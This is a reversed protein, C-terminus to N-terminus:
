PQFTAEPVTAEKLAYVGAGPIELLACNYYARITCETLPLEDTLPQGGNGLKDPGLQAAREEIATMNTEKEPSEELAAIQADAWALGRRYNDVNAAHTTWYSDNPGPWHGANYIVLAALERDGDVPALEEDTLIAVQRYHSANWVCQEQIDRVPNNFVQARVALVNPYGPSRNGAYHYLVVRQGIGFSVDAWAASILAQLKTTDGAAIAAQAQPTTTGFREARENLKSEAYSCGLPLRLPMAGDLAGQQYVSTVDRGQQTTIAM